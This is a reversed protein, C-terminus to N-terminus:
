RCCGEGRAPDVRWSRPLGMLDVLWDLMLSEVETAAPSTSWLMGQVGLGAAVLEGLISPPSTNAPFYAFWGPHQWNTIGPLIM